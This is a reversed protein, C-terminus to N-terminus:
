GHLREMLTTFARAAVTPVVGNGLARLRDVRHPVGHAVRGLEPESAWWCAGFPEGSDSRDEGLSRGSEHRLESRDTDALDGGGQRPLEKGGGELRASPRHALIFLRKRLHPAGSAAASFVDWEADFGFSALSGLVAALGGSSALGPVNEVFVVSPEVDRIAQEVHPWLWRADHLGARKGAVSHPQCPFGASILDAVGRFYGGPFSELSGWIPARDLAKDAMRAVLCAAAYADREVYGVCRFSKGLALKLGLELGGVGACLALGNM